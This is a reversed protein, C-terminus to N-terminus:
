YRAEVRIEVAKTVMTENGNVELECQTIFLYALDDSDKHLTWDDTGQTDDANQHKWQVWLQFTSM